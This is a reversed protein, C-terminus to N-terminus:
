QIYVPSSIAENGDAQKVKIYYYDGTSTTLSQTIVPNTSNPTWTYIATGNKFLKVESFVESNGDGAKIVADYTGASITSGMQSGSIELSLTINKDLTTFFRRNQLAEYISARTKATALIALRYDNETGWTGSHNDHAGAAGVKWRRTNAEDFYGKSGDNPYYGDNYYYTTFPDNKNWLEMGVFKSSPTTSFHNFESGISDQRGPHNFFAVCNRSSLWTILESFTNTALSTSKCYDTTNIVAVHGYTSHSWEFGHLAVFTGDQNYTDAANKISTWETSSISEAHDALAFFDLGATDRAYAYAQAPTGTGDSVNSHNHLSGYYVNYNVSAANSVYEASALVTFTVVLMVVTLLATISPKLHNVTSKSKSM